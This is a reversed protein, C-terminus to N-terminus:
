GVSKRDVSEKVADELQPPIIGREGPTGYEYISPEEWYAWKMNKKLLTERKEGMLNKM